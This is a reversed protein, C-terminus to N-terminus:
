LQSIQITTLALFWPWHNNISADSKNDKTQNIKRDLFGPKQVHKRAYGDTFNLHACINAKNM